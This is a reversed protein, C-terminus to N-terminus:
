AYFNDEDTYGFNLQEQSTDPTGIYPDPPPTRDIAQRATVENNDMYYEPGIGATRFWFPRAMEPTQERPLMDYNREGESYVKIKAPTVLSNIPARPEDTSREVALQNNRTQYRQQMSTQREYQAPDSPKADAPTGMHMGSSPKNLWGESVTESPKNIFNDQYWRFAGQRLSRWRNRYAGTATYPPYGQPTAIRALRDEVPVDWPQRNDYEVGTYPSDDPTYGWLETPLLAEPVSTYPPTTEDQRPNIASLRDAPSGYYYHIPNIGTGWIQPSAGPYTQGYTRAWAGKTPLAM